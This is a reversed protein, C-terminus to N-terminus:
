KSEPHEFTDVPKVAPTKRVAIQLSPPQTNVQQHTRRQYGCDHGLVHPMPPQTLYCQLWQFYPLTRIEITKTPLQSPHVSHDELKYYLYRQYLIGSQMEQLQTSM